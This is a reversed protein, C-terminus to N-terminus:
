GFIETRLHHRDLGISKLDARVREIFRPSPPIGTKRSEQQSWSTIGPGCLFVMPNRAGALAREIEARAFHPPQATELFHHVALRDPHAAALADLPARFIVDDPAPSEYLLVQQGSFGRHLAEKMLGYNPVIGSGSCLHLLLDHDAVDAPLTYLGDFGKFDLRSGPPLGHILLPSLLAPPAGEHAVEEKITIALFPEHPASSLSYARPPETRGKLAERESLSPAIQPFQHPDITLFQGAQYAPPGGDAVFELTVTDRTERRVATV